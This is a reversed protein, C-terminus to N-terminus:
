RFLAPTTCRLLPLQVPTVISVLSVTAQCDSSHGPLMLSAEMLVCVCVCRKNKKNKVLHMMWFAFWVYHISARCHHTHTDSHEYAENLGNNWILMFMYSGTHTHTTSPPPPSETLWSYGAASLAILTWLISVCSCAVAGHVDLLM